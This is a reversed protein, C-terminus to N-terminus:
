SNRKCDNESPHHDRPFIWHELQVFNARTNPEPRQALSKSLVNNNGLGATLKELVTTAATVKDLGTRKQSKPVFFLLGYADCRREVNHM